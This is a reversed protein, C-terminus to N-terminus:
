EPGARGRRRRGRGTDEEESPYRREVDERRREDGDQERRTREREEDRRDTMSGEEGRAEHVTQARTQEHRRRGRECAEAGHERASLRNELNM